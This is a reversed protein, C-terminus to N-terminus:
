RYKEKLELKKIRSEIAGENRGFFDSMEKISKNDCFLQELKEDDDQTWPEYANKYVKRIESVDYAKGKEQSKKAKLINVYDLTVIFNM